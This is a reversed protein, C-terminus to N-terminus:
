PQEVDEWSTVFFVQDDVEGHFRLSRGVLNMLEVDHFPNAGARRLIFEGSDSELVVALHASKSKGGM